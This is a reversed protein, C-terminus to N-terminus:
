HIDKCRRLIQDGLDYLDDIKEIIYKTVTKDANPIKVYKTSEKLYIRCIWKTVKDDLLIGFYSKTDKATIRNASVVQRAISKVIYLSQLEEDTTIIGDDYIDVDSEDEPIVEVIEVITPKLEIDDRSLASKIKENVLDNMYQGISRKVLPRFKDLVSQTKVGEYIPTLIFRIFDDTPALFQEKLLGRIANSYKLESATDLIEKINFNNKHFKMLESIDTDKLDLLNVELFPTADMKNPADLDTYFRYIIGNTLIAFKASSTGFYRFLQSDHKSLEQHISKVEILISPKGSELIAYDVKEGKKIGVDAIYEPVFESPNFVDYGLAQFFPMVISTKTAEETLINAKINEIRKSLEKIKVENDM